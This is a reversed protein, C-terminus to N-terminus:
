KEEKQFVTEGCRRLMEVMDDLCEQDPIPACFLTTEGRVNTATFLVGVQTAVSIEPDPSMSVVGEIDANAFPKQANIPVGIISM